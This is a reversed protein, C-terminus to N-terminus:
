TKIEHYENREIILRRDQEEAIEKALDPRLEALRLLDGVQMAELDYPKTYIM